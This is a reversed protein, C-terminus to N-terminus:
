IPSFYEMLIRLSFDTEVVNGRRAVMDLGADDPVSLGAGALCQSAALACVFM